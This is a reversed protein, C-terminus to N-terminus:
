RDDDFVMLSRLNVIAREHLKRCADESRELLVSIEKFSLREYMRLQIVTHQDDPLEEIAAQLLGHLEQAIVHARPSNGSDALHNLLERASDGTAKVERAIQRIDTNFVRSQQAVKNSLIRKLWGLFELWTTGRFDDFAASAQAFTEQVVDSPATKPHLHRPLDGNAIKLLLPRCIELLRGLAEDSGDRAARLLRDFEFDDSGSSLASEV